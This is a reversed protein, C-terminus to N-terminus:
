RLRMLQGQLEQIERMIMQVNMSSSVYGTQQAIDNRVNRKADELEMRLADIRNQIVQRELSNDPKQMSPTMPPMVQQPYPAPVYGSQMAQSPTMQGAPYVPQSSPMQQVPPLFTPNPRQRQNNAPVGKQKGGLEILKRMFRASISYDSIRKGVNDEHNIDFGCKVMEGLLYTSDVMAADWLMNRGYADEDKIFGAGHAILMKAIEDRDEISRASARDNRRQFSSSLWPMQMYCDLLACLYTDSRECEWPSNEDKKNLAGWVSSESSDERKIDKVHIFVNPNAGNELLKKVFSKRGVRAAIMLPTGLVKVEGGSYLLYYEGILGASTSWNTRYKRTNLGLYVEGNYTGMSGINEQMADWSAKREEDNAYIVRQNCNAEGIGSGVAIVDDISHHKLLELMQALNGKYIAAEMAMGYENDCVVSDVLVMGKQSPVSYHQTTQSPERSSTEQTGKPVALLLTGVPLVGIAMVMCVRKMTESKM